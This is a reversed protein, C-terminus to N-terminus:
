CGDRAMRITLNMGAEGPDPVHKQCINSYEDMVQQYKSQVESRTVHGCGSIADDICEIKSVKLEFVM